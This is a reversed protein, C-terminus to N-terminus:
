GHLLQEGLHGLNHTSKTLGVHLNKMARIAAEFKVLCQDLEHRSGDAQLLSCSLEKLTPELEKELLQVLTRGQTDSEITSRHLASLIGTHVIPDVTRHPDLEATTAGHTKAQERAAQAAATAVSGGHKAAALGAEAQEMGSIAKDWNPRLDLAHQYHSTAQGFQGKDLYANALNLHADQMDPNLRVAEHYAQIALDIQKKRKYALGLNYYGEARHTDLQIGRRLVQIAEDVQDLRNYVAGLNIFAAARQPDLRTVERFHYVANPLEGRMFCVTALGYHADPSDAKVGLAQLYIQGAEDYNGQVIAQRARACLSEVSESFM